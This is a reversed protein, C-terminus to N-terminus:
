IAANRAGATRPKSLAMRSPGMPGPAGGNPDLHNRRAPDGVATLDAGACFHGGTGGLV